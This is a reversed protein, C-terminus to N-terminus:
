SGVEGDESYVGGVTTAVAAASRGPMKAIDESGVTGGSATQDKAILPVKYEKIEVEALMEASANLEFNQFTISGGSVQVNNYMLTAYGVYSASVTYKGVPIPKISYRGDFDTMGGTVINNNEEITVNAFPIPEGTAADTISGNLTGQAYLGASAVAFAMIVLLLKRLM